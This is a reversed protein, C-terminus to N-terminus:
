APLHSLFDHCSRGDGAAGAVAVDAGVGSAGCGIRVGFRAGGASVAALAMGNSASPPLPLAVRVWVQFVGFILSIVRKNAQTHTSIINQQNAATQNKPM